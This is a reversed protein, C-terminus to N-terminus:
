SPAASTWGEAARLSAVVEGQAARFDALLEHKPGGGAPPVLRRLTKVRLRPPADMSRVFWDGLRGHRYPGPRLWGKARARAVAAAIAELYPRITRPLHALHEGISWKEPRPRWALQAADLPAVLQDVERTQREVEGAWAEIESM